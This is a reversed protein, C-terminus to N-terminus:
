RDRAALMADAFTYADRAADEHSLRMDTDQWVLPRLVQGAFYDRLTMGPEQSHSPLGDTGLPQSPFAPVPPEDIM